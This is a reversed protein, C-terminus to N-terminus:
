GDIIQESEWQERTKSCSFKLTPDIYWQRGFEYQWQDPIEYPCHYGDTYATNMLGSNFGGVSESVIWKIYYMIPNSLADPTIYQNNASKWFPMMNEWLSGDKTYKGIRQSQHELAGGKSELTIEMCQNCFQTRVNKEFKVNSEGFKSILDEKHKALQATAMPIFLSILVLKM